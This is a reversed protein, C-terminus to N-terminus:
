GVKHVFTATFCWDDDDDDDNNGGIGSANSYDHDNRMSDEDGVAVNVVINFNGDDYKRDM